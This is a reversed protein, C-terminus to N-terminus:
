RVMAQNERVQRSSKFEALAQVVLRGEPKRGERLRM